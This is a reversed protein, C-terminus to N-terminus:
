LHPPVSGLMEAVWVEPTGAGRCEACPNISGAMPPQSHECQRVTLVVALGIPIIKELTATGSDTLSIM